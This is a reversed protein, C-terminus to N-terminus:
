YTNLTLLFTSGKVIKYNSFDCVIYEGM